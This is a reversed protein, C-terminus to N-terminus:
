PLFPLHPSPPWLFPLSPSALAEQISNTLASLTGHKSGVPVQQFVVQHQFIGTHLSFPPSDCLTTFAFGAVLVVALHQTLLQLREAPLSSIKLM